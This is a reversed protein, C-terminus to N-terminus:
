KINQGGSNAWTKPIIAANNDLIILFEKEFCCFESQAAAGTLCL